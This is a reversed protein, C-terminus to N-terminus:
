RARAAMRVPVVILAAAAMGVIAGGIITEVALRFLGPASVGANADVTLGPSGDPNMAVAMWDGSKATWLLTQTGPGSVESVWIGSTQPPVPKASGFHSELGRGGSGIGTVATYRVGALYAAVRDAPGIAVFVQKGPDTPTVRLRVDGVLGTLLLGGSLSVRDSALAYGSTSYTVTGTAIDGAQRHAQDAWMAIGGGAFLGVSVVALLAGAVLAVIRWPTWGGPREPPPATVDGPGGAGPITGHPFGTAMAM